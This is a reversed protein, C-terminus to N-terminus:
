RTKMQYLYYISKLLHKLLNVEKQDGLHTEKGYVGQNLNQIKKEENM